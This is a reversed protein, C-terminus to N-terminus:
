SVPVVRADFNWILKTGSVAEGEKKNEKSFRLVPTEELTAVSLKVFPFHKLCHSLMLSEHAFYTLTQLIFRTM